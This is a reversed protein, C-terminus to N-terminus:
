HYYAKNVFSVQVRFKIGELSSNAKLDSRNLIRETIENLSKNDSKVIFDCLSSDDTVKFTIIMPCVEVNGIYEEFPVKNLVDNLDSLLESRASSLSKTENATTILGLSLVILCCFLIKKTKM